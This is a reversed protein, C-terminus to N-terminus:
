KTNNLKKFNYNDNKVYIVQSGMLSSLVSMAISGGIILMPHCMAISMVGMTALLVTIADHNEQRRQQENM